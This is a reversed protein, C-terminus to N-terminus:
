QASNCSNKNLFRRAQERYREILIELMTIEARQERERRKEKETKTIVQPPKRQM